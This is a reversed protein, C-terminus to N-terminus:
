VAGPPVYLCRWQGETGICLHFRGDGSHKVAASGRAFVHRGQFWPRTEHAGRPVAVHWGDAREQVLRDDIPACDMTTSCCEQPYTWGSPAEHAFAMIAVAIAASWLALGLLAVVAAAICFRRAVRHTVIEPDEDPWCQMTM